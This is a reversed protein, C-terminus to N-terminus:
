RDVDKEDAALPTWRTRDENFRGRLRPVCIWRCCRPCRYGAMDDTWILTTGCHPCPRETVEVGPEPTSVPEQSEDAPEAAAVARRILEVVAATVNSGGPAFGREIKDAAGLLMSADSDDPGKFQVTPLILETM